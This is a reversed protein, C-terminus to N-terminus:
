ASKVLVFLYSQGNFEITCNVRVKRDEDVSISEVDFTVGSESFAEKFGPAETLPVSVTSEIGNWKVTFKQEDANYNGLYANGSFYASLYIYSLKVCMNQVRIKERLEDEYSHMISVANTEFAQQAQIKASNQREEYQVSTEFEGKPSVNNRLYDAIYREKRHVFAERYTPHSMYDTISANERLLEPLQETGMRVYTLVPTWANYIRDRYFQLLRPDSAFATQSQYNAAYGQVNNERQMANAPYGNNYPQGLMNGNYAPNPQQPAGYNGPTNNGMSANSPIARKTNQYHLDYNGAFSDYDFITLSSFACVDLLDHGLINKTRNNPALKMLEPLMHNKRYLAAYNLANMGYDDIYSNINYINSRFFDIDGCLIRGIMLERLHSIFQRYKESLSAAIEKNDALAEKHQPSASQDPHIIRSIDENLYMNSEDAFDNVINLYLAWNEYTPYTQISKRIDALSEAIDRNHYHELARDCYCKSLIRHYEEKKQLATQQWESLGNLSAKAAADDFLHQMMLVTIEIPVPIPYSRRPDGAAFECLLAAIVRAEELSGGSANCSINRILASYHDNFASQAAENYNLLVARIGTLKEYMRGTADIMATRDFTIIYKGDNVAPDNSNRIISRCLDEYSIATDCSDSSSRVAFGGQFFLIGIKGKKFIFAGDIFGLKEGYETHQGFNNNINFVSQSPMMRWDTYGDLSQLYIILANNAYVGQVAPAASGAAAAKAADCQEDFLDKLSSDFREITTLENM